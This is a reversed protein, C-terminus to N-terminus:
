SYTATLNSALVTVTKGVRATYTTSRVTDVFVFEGKVNADTVTM